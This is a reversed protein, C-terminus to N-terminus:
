NGVKIDTLFGEAKEDRKGSCVIRDVEEQSTYNLYITAEPKDRWFEIAEPDDYIRQDVKVGAGIELKKVPASVSAFSRASPGASMLRGSNSSDFLKRSSIKSSIEGSYKVFKEDSKEVSDCCYTSIPSGISSDMFDLCDVSPGASKSEFDVFGFGRSTPTSRAPRMEKSLYFTFGCAYVRADGILQAAVGRLVESTVLYQRITGDDARFGDIWLMGDPTATTCLYNQKPWGYKCKPCFRDQEFPVKHRPCNNVYQELQVGDTKLGTIPNVGQVSIVIAVHHTHDGCSNFDFWLERGELLPVFYSGVGAGGRMWSVPCAPYQDVVFTDVARYHALEFTKSGSRLLPANMAVGLGGVSMLEKGFYSKKMFSPNKIITVYPAFVYGKPHSHTARHAILKHGSGNNVTLFTYMKKM